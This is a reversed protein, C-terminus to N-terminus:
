GRRGSGFYDAIHALKEHVHEVIVVAAVDADAGLTAGLEAQMVHRGLSEVVM